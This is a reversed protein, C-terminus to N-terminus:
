FWQDGIELLISLLIIFSYTSHLKLLLALIKSSETIRILWKRTNSRIDLSGIAWM